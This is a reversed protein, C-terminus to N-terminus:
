VFYRGEDGSASSGQSNSVEREEDDTPPCEDVGIRGAAGTLGGRKGSDSRQHLSVDERTDKTELSQGDYKPVGHGLRSEGSKTAAMRSADGCDDQLRATSITLEASLHPARAGTAATNSAVCIPEGGDTFFLSVSGIAVSKATCFTIFAKFETLNFTLTADRGLRPSTFETCNVSLETKLTKYIASEDITSSHFSSFRINKRAADVALTMEETGRIHTLLESLMPTRATFSNPSRQKDFNVNFVDCEAYFFSCTKIIAHKGRFNFCITHDINKHLNMIMQQV